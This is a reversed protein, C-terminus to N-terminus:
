GNSKYTIGVTICVFVIIVYDDMYVYRYRCVINNRYLVNSLATVFVLIELTQDGSSIFQTRRRLIITRTHM